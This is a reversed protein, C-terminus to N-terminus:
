GAKEGFLDSVKIKLVEALRPIQRPTPMTEGHEWHSVASQTVGLLAALETQNLGLKCRAERIVDKLIEGGASHTYSMIYDIKMFLM